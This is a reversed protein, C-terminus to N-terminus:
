PWEGPCDEKKNINVIVSVWDENLKKIFGQTTNVVYPTKLKRFIMYSFWAPNLTVLFWKNYYNVLVKNIQEDEILVQNEM